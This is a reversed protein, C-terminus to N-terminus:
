GNGNELTSLLTNIYARISLNKSIEKLIIKKNEESGSGGLKDWSEFYSKLEINLDNLHNELDTKIQAVERNLIKLKEEDTESKREEIKEQFEMVEMLIEPPVKKEEKPIEGWELKLLYGARQVPDKLIKYASNLFATREISIKRENEDKNSFYDPHYKRSLEYFHNELEDLDLNLEKKMGLYSFYDINEILPLIKNCSTCYETTHTQSHCNWCTHTDSM